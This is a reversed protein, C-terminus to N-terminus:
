VSYITPLTLHTYSVAGAREQLRKLKWSVASQSVNLIEATTTMSGTDAVSVLARLSELDFKM